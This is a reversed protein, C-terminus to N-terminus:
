RFSFTGLHCLAGFVQSMAGGSVTRVSVTTPPRDPCFLLLGLSRDVGPLVIVHFEAVVVSLEALVM